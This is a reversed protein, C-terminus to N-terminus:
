SGTPPPPPPTEFGAAVTDSQTKLADSTSVVADLATQQAPTLVGNALEGQLTQINTNLSAIGAAITAVDTKIAALDAAAQTLQSSITAMFEKVQAQFELYNEVFGFDVSLNYCIQESKDQV